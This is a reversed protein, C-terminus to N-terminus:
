KKRVSRQAEAGERRQVLMFNYLRQAAPDWGGGRATTIVGDLYDAADRPLTGADRHATLRRACQALRPEDHNRVATYLADVTRFVAENPGMQPPTRLRLVLVVVLGALLVGLVVWAARRRNRTGPWREITAM